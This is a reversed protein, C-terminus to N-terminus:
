SLLLFFCIGCSTSSPLPVDLRDAVITEQCVEPTYPHIIRRAGSKKANEAKRKNRKDVEASGSRGLGM